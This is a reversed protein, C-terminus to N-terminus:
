ADVDGFPDLPSEPEAVVEEEPEPAVPVPDTGIPAFPNPRGNTQIDEFTLTRNELTVFAPNSFLTTDLNISQLSLLTAIFEQGIEATITSGAQSIPSAVPENTGGSVLGTSQEQSSNGLVFYVAAAVVVLGLIILLTKLGKNM